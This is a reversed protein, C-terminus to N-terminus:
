LGSALLQAGELAVGVAEVARPSLTSLLVGQRHSSTGGLSFRGRLATSSLFWTRSGYEARCCLSSFRVSSAEVLDTIIFWYYHM